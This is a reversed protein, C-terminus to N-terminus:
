EITEYTSLDVHEGIKFDVTKPQSDTIPYANKVKNELYTKFGGTYTNGSDYMVGDSYVGWLKFATESDPM